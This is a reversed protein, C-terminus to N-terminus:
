SSYLKLMYTTVNIIEKNKKRIEPFIFIRKAARQRNFTMDKM